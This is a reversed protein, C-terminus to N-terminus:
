RPARVAQAWLDAVGLWATPRHAALRHYLREAREDPVWAPHVWKGRVVKVESFGARRLSRRLNRRTQENVHMAKEEAIRPNAPWRRRRGPIALRQLRYTVEYITKTPMTHALLRGGPRLVRLAEKLALDLEEPTLHEVIDLMTVLHATRDPVPLERADSALLMAEPGTGATQLTRRALGLACHSYEVGIAMSAGKSLAVALLEGRGTGLDLVVEGPRLAARELAGAYLGAFRTGGSVEWEEHGACCHLYYDQDYVDAPVEPAAMPGPTAGRKV